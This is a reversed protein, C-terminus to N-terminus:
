ATGPLASFQRCFPLNSPPDNEIVGRPRTLVLHTAEREGVRKAAAEWGKSLGPARYHTDHADTALIQVLGDALMRESWYRPERGFNGTLSGATIQMWIGRRNLREIMGYGEAIWHLREPHTLIPVYGASLIELFFQELRIPAVHHPPEVLVYRSDALTPIERAKLKKTFHLAMHADAGFALGLAIGAAKLAARFRNPAAAIKPGTNHYLGPRIHPTCVVVSIGDAVAMRAMALSTELNPAGDDMGPLMHCHLDIM